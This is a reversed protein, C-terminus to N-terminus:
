LIACISRHIFLHGNSCSCNYKINKGDHCYMTLIGDYYFFVNPVLGYETCQKCKIIDNNQIINYKYSISDNLYGNEYLKM